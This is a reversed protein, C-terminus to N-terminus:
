STYYNIELINLGSQHWLLSWQIHFISNKWIGHKRQAIETVSFIIRRCIGSTRLCCPQQMASLNLHFLFVRTPNLYAGYIKSYYGGLLSRYYFLRFDGWSYFTFQLFQLSWHSRFESPHFILPLAAVCHSLSFVVKYNNKRKKAFYDTIDM